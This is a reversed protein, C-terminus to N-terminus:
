DWGPFLAGGGCTYFVRDALIKDGYEFALLKQKAINGTSILEGEKSYFLIDVTAGGVSVIDYKKLKIAM